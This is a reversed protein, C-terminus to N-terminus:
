TVRVWSRWMRCLEVFDRSKWRPTTTWLPLAVYSASLLLGRESLLSSLDERAELRELVDFMEVGEFGLRSIADLTDTIQGHWGITGYAFHM